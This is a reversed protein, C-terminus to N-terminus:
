LKFDLTNLKKPYWYTINLFDPKSKLNFYYIFFVFMTTAFSIIAYWEKKNYSILDSVIFYIPFYATIIFLVLLLYHLVNKFGIDVM